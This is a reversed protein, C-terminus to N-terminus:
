RLLQDASALGPCCIKQTAQTTQIESIIMMSNKYNNQGSGKSISIMIGEALRTSLLTLKMAANCGRAIVPEKEQGPELDTPGSQGRRAQVLGGFSEGITEAIEAELKLSNRSQHESIGGYNSCDGVM